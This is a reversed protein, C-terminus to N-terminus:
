QNKPRRKLEKNKVAIKRSIMLIVVLLIACLCAIVSIVGVMSNGEFPASYDIKTLNFILLASALGLIIYLAIKM